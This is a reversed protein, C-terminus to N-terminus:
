LNPAGNVQSWWCERAGRADASERQDIMTSSTDTKKELMLKTKEIYCQIPSRRKIYITM